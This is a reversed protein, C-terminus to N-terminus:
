RTTPLNSAILQPLLKSPKVNHVLGPGPPIINNTWVQNAPNSICSSILSELTTLGNLSQCACESELKSTRRLIM